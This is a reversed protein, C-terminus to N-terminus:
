KLLLRSFDPRITTPAFYCFLAVFVVLLLEPCSLPISPTPHLFRRVSPVITFLDAPLNLPWRQCSLLQEGRKRRARMGRGLIRAEHSARSARSDCGTELFTKRREREEQKEKDREGKTKQRRDPGRPERHRRREHQARPITEMRRDQQVTEQVHKDGDHSHCKRM